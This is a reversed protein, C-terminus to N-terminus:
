RASGAAVIRQRLKGIRDREESAGILARQPDPSGLFTEYRGYALYVKVQSTDALSGELWVLVRDLAPRGSRRDTRSAQLAADNWNVQDVAFSDQELIRYIQQLLDRAPGRAVIVPQPRELPTPDRARVTQASAVSPIFAIALAVCVSLAVRSPHPM